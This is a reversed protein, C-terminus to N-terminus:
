AFLNRLPTLILELRSMALNLFLADSDNLFRTMSMASVTTGDHVLCSMANVAVHQEQVPALGQEELLSYACACYMLAACLCYLTRM